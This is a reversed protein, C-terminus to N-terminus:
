DKELMGQLLEKCELSVTNWVPRDFALPQNVINQGTEKKDSGSFPVRSSILAFLIVGLSWIDAKSDSPLDLVVEPAMFGITGAVKKICEDDNLHAAM